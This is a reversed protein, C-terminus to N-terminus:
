AQHVAKARGAGGIGDVRDESRSIVARTLPPSTSAPVPPTDDSRDLEGETLISHTQHSMNLLCSRLGAPGGTGDAVVQLRGSDLDGVSLADGVSVLSCCRFPVVPEGM